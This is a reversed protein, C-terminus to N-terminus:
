RLYDDMEEGNLTYLSQYIALYKEKFTIELEVSIFEIPEGFEYNIILSIKSTNTELSGIELNEFTKFYEEAEDIKYNKMFNYFSQKSREVVNNKVIWKKLQETNM